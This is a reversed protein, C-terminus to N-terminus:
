GYFFSDIQQQHTNVRLDIKPTENFHAFLRNSQEAGLRELWIKVIWYARLIGNVVGGLKPYGNEKTLEVSSNVAASDLIQNLYRLQYLGIQLIIPLKRKVWGIIGDLSRQRRVIGYVLECTLGRHLNSIKAPRLIPDLAINTYAGKHYIERLAILALQRPNDM